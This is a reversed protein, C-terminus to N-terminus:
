NVEALGFSARDISSNNNTVTNVQQRDFEIIEKFGKRFSGHLLQFSDDKFELNTLVEGRQNEYVILGITGAIYLIIHSNGYRLPFSFKIFPSNEDYGTSTIIICPNESMSLLDDIISIVYFIDSPSFSM